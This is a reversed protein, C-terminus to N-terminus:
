LVDCNECFLGGLLRCSPFASCKDTAWMMQCVVLTVLVVLVGFVGMFSWILNVSLIGVVRTVAAKASLNTWAECGRELAGIVHLM